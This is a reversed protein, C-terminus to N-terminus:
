NSHFSTVMNEMINDEGVGGCISSVTLEKTLSFLINGVTGHGGNAKKDDSEL